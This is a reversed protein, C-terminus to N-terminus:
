LLDSHRWIWIKLKKLPKEFALIQHKLQNQHLFTHKSLKFKSWIVSKSANPDTTPPWLQIRKKAKPLQCWKSFTGAGRVGGKAKEWFKSSIKIFNQHFKHRSTRPQISSNKLKAKSETWLLGLDLGTNCFIFFFCKQRPWFNRYFNCKECKSHLNKM